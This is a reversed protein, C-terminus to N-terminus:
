SRLPFADIYCSGISPDEQQDGAIHETDTEGEDKSCKFRRRAIAIPWGNNECYKGLGVSRVLLGFVKRNSLASESTAEYKKPKEPKYSVHITTLRWAQKLLACQEGKQCPM